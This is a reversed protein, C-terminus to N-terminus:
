DEKGVSRSTRSVSAAVPMASRMPVHDAPIRLTRRRAAPRTKSSRAAVSATPENRREASCHAEDVALLSVGRAALTALCAENQLREPTVYVICQEHGRLAEEGARLERAGITSNLEVVRLGAADLGRVAVTALAKKDEEASAARAASGEGTGALDDLRDLLLAVAVIAAPGNVPALGQFVYAEQEPHLHRLGVQMRTFSGSCWSTVDRIAITTPSSGADEGEGHGGCAELLAWGQAKADANFGGRVLQKQIDDRQSVGLLFTLARGPVQELTQNRVTSARFLLQASSSKTAM